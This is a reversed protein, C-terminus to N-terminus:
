KSYVLWVAMIRLSSCGNAEVFGNALATQVNSHSFGPPLTVLNKIGLASSSQLPLM